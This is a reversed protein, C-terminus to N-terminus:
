LDTKLHPYYKELFTLLDLHSLGQIMSIYCWLSKWFDKHFCFVHIANSTLATSVKQPSTIVSLPNKATFNKWTSIGM